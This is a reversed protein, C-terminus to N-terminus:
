GSFLSMVGVIYDQNSDKGILWSGIFVGCFASIIGTLGGLVISIIALFLIWKKKQGCEAGCFKAERLKSRTFNSSHIDAESLNARELNVERFNAGRLDIETFDVDSLNINRFDVDSLNIKIEPNEERWKNWVEVGKKLIVLHEVNTM